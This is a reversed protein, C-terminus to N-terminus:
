GILAEEIDHVAKQDAAPAKAVVRQYYGEQPQDATYAGTELAAQAYASSQLEELKGKKVIKRIQGVHTEEHALVDYLNQAIEEFTRKRQFFLISVAAVQFGAMALLSKILSADAEPHETLIENVKRNITVPDQWPYITILVLKQGEPRAALAQPTIHIKPHESIQVYGLVHDDSASDLGAVDGAPIGMQTAAKQIAEVNKGQQLLGAVDKLQNQTPTFTTQRPQLIDTHEPATASPRYAVHEVPHRTTVDEPDGDSVLNSTRPDVGMYTRVKQAAGAERPTLIFLALLGVGLLSGYLRFLKM